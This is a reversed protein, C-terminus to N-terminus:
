AVFEVMASSQNRNGALALSKKEEEEFRGSRSQVWPRKAHTSLDREDPNFRGPLSVVVGGRRIEEHNGGKSLVSIIQSWSIWNHPVRHRLQNLCQAVLRPDRTRNGISDNSNKMSKIRGAASVSILLLLIESPRLPPRHMPSVAKGGEHASQRSIQSGLGGSVRLVQRPKYHSLNV